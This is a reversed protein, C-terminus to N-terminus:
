FKGIRPEVVFVNSLTKLFEPICRRIEFELFSVWCICSTSSVKTVLLLSLPDSMNETWDIVCFAKNVLMEVVYQLEADTVRSTWLEATLFM